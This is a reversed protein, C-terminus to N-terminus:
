IRWCGVGGKVRRTTFKGSHGNSYQNAATAVNARIRDYDRASCRVVFSDGKEMDSFPYVAREARGVRKYKPPIPVGKQIRHM